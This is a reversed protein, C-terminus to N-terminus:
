QNSLQSSGQMVKGLLTCKAFDNAVSIDFDIQIILLM